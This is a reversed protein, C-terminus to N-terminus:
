LVLAPKALLSPDLYRGNWKLRWCLHPGTARGKKGVHGIIQGKKVYDGTKIFLKDQHLYMAILGQGHDIFSLGGEYFFDPGALSVFGDAPSLIPTGIPAAMDLGYHPSKPIGNLIRQNGFAGSIRFSSLPQAFGAFFGDGTSRSGFAAAKMASEKKIRAVINPDTPTVTQPPLGDVRQINYISPAIKLSLRRIEKSGVLEIVSIPPNDRDFGIFFAGSTSIAGLRKGDVILQDEPDALGMAYGGQILRGKLAVDKPTIETTKSFAAIPPACLAGGMVMLVTRRLPKFDEM